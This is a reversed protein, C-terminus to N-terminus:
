NLFFLYLVCAFVVLFLWFLKGNIQHELDAATDPREEQMAENYTIDPVTDVATLPCSILMAQSVLAKIYMLAFLMNIYKMVVIKLFYLTWSLTNLLSFNRAM